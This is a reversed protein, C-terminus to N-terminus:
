VSVGWKIGYIELPILEVATTSTNISSKVMASNAQEFHISDNNLTTRRSVTETGSSNASTRSVYFINPTNRVHFILRHNGGANGVVISLEDYFELNNLDVSQAAFESTPSANQWLLEISVKSDNLVKLARADAVYGPETTTFNNVIKSEDLGGSNEDVYKKNVADTDNQPDAVNTIAKGGMNIAGTMTGGSLQLFSNASQEYLARADEYATKANIYEAVVADLNAASQNYADLAANYNDTAETLDGAADELIAKAQTLESKATDFDATAKNLAETATELTKTARSIEGSMNQYDTKAKEYNDISLALSNVFLNELANYSYIEEDDPPTIYDDPKKKPNVPIIMKYLCKFADGEYTCIYVIIDHSQELLSNPIDVSVVGAKDMSAQKVIANNMTKNSFHIEPISPLSLGYIQLVQNKDWQYLPDITYRDKTVRADIM